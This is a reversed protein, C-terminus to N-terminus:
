NVKRKFELFDCDEGEYFAIPEGLLPTLCKAIANKDEDTRKLCDRRSYFFVYILKGEENVEESVAFHLYHNKGCYLTQAKGGVFIMIDFESCKLTELIEKAWYPMAIGNKNM